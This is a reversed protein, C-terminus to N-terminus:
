CLCKSFKRESVVVVCLIVVFIPVKDIISRQTTVRIHIDREGKAGVWSVFWDWWQADKCDCAATGINENVDDECEEAPNWAM